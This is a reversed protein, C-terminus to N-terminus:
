TTGARLASLNRFHADQDAKIEACIKVMRAFYRPVKKLGTGPKKVKRREKPCCDGNGHPM